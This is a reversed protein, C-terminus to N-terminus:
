WLGLLFKILVLVPLHKRLHKLATTMHKEVTKTSIDLREAIEKYSLEEFRSLVFVLRPADPLYGIVKNVKNETESFLLVSDTLDSAHGQVQDHGETIEEGTFKVKGRLYNLSRNVVAARMYAQINGSVQLESQKEWVSIFAEQVLDEATNADSIIRASISVLWKYHQRFILEFDIENEFLM